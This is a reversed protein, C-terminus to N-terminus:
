IIRCKCSCISMPEHESEMKKKNIKPRDEGFQSLTNITVLSGVAVFEKNEKEFHESSDKSDFNRGFSCISVESSSTDLFFTKIRDTGPNEM